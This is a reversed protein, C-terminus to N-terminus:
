SGDEQTRPPPPIKELQVDGVSKIEGSRFVTDTLIRAFMRTDSDAIGVNYKVGPVLGEIEFRGESDTYIDGPPLPGATPGHSTPEQMEGPWSVLELGDKPEGKADLVRGSIAAWPQLRVALKSPRDGQITLSGVLRLEKHFFFLDRPKTSDYAKARFTSTSLPEHAWPGGFDDDGWVLTGVLPQGDPDLVEGTVTNGSDLSVNCEYRDQDETPNVETVVNFNGTNCMSPATPFLVRGQIARGGEIKEAGMGFRYANDGTVRVAILGRGPLGVRRFSGESAIYYSDIWGRSAGNLGPADKAHPNDSFVFYFVAARKVRDGTAMDTVQGEIWIGRKMAFDLTTEPAGSADEVKLESLLYPQDDPPIALIKTGARRPLGTLCYKGQADSTTEVWQMLASGGLSPAGRLRVGALPKGTDKDRVVGIVPKATRTRHEFTVGYYTSKGLTPAGRYDPLEVREAPRTMVNIISTEINRGEICLTVMREAGVGRLVFGGDTGIELPPLVQGLLNMSAAKRLFRGELARAEKGTRLAEVWATLNQEASTHILLVSVRADTVPRGDGDTVRGRIAPEGEVLRLTTGDKELGNGWDPGYGEAWAIIPAYQVGGDRMPASFESKAVDFRFAGDGGTTARVPSDRRINSEYATQLYLKAGAIPQGDPGVVRGQLTLQEEPTESAAQVEQPATQQTERKESLEAKKEQHSANAETQESPSSLLSLPAAITAFLVLATKTRWSLSRSVKESVIMEIRRKLSYGQNFATAIDPIVELSVALFEVTDVLTQAYLRANSPFTWLVWGDCCEEEAQQVQARAWWAVPNWWYIGLVLFEFWRIWHDGRKLHALEHALLGAREETGLRSLLRSPLVMSSRGGFGWILPPIKADVVLVSPVNHLGYKSAINNVETLMEKSAPSACRLLKRFRFLRTGALLFWCLSGTIWVGVLLETWPAAFFWSLKSEEVVKNPLPANAAVQHPSNTFEAKDESDPPVGDHIDNPRQVSSVNGDSTLATQLVAPTDVVALMPYGVPIQVVPPTVLKVLVLVWLTHTIQPRTTIKGVVAAVLALFSAIVVNSVLCELTIM